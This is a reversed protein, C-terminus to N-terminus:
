FGTSENGLGRLGGLLGGPMTGPQTAATSAPATPPVLRGAGMTPAGAFDAMPSILAECFLDKQGRSRLIFQCSM